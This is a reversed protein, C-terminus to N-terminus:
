RKTKYYVGFNFSPRHAELHGSFAGGVAATIGIQGTLEEILKVGFGGYENDNLNLYTQFSQTPDIRNGNELSEVIDIFAIVWLQDFFRKGGEVYFKFQTSYNNTRLSFGTNGQYFWDGIGRGVAVTPIFSFADIGTSLGTDSDFKSTPLNVQLQLAVNYKKKMLQYRGAIGINGFANLKGEEIAVPATFESVLEGSKQIKFPISTVVTVKDTLGIETYWQFVRDSIRRSTYLDGGNKNFIRNYDSIDNYSLQTYIGGKPQVWASQSFALTGVILFFLLLVKQRM